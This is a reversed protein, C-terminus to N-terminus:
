VVSKRDARAHYHQLWGEVRPEPWSSFADRLLSVPDYAIPGHVMDQFDLVAPGADLPMLNRLMYDRHTPVRAQALANDMLRRQALQLCESDACDLHIGLHKGIFWEEFLGADRQLLAEGFVPFDSPLALSQLRILQTIAADILGDANADTIVQAVTPGGLDELILFGQVEDRALVQPVRVGAADLLDRVRLWPRLDEKDPPADMVVRSPTVGETRWYSRFGADTSARQLQVHPDGLATRTWHLRLAARPATEPTSM